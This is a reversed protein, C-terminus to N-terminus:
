SVIFNSQLPNVLTLQTTSLIKLISKYELHGENIDMFVIQEADKFHFTNVVDVVTDGAHIDSTLLTRAGANKMILNIMGDSVQELSHSQGITNVM